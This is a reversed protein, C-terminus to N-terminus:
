SSANKAAADKAAKAADRKANLKAVKAPGVYLAELVQEVFDLLDRVDEPDVPEVHAADNGILRVHTAQEKLAKNLRDDPIAEIELRLDHRKGGLVDRAAAQLVRRGVLAAGLHHGNWSCEKAERFEEAILQPVGDPAYQAKSAPYVEALLTANPHKFIYDAYSNIVLFVARSCERVQCLVVTFVHSPGHKENRQHFISGTTRSVIGCWPCRLSVDLTDKGRGQVTTGVESM